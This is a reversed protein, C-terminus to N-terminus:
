AEVGERTIEGWSRLILATGGFFWAPAVSFFLGIAAEGGGLLPWVFLAVFYLGFIRSALPFWRPFRSLLAEQVDEFRLLGVAEARRSITLLVFVFTLLAAIFLFAVAGPLDIGLLTLVHVGLGLLMGAVCALYVWRPFALPEEEPDTSAVPEASASGGVPEASLTKVLYAQLQPMERKGIRHGSWVLGVGFAFMVTLAALPVLTESVGPSISGEAIAAGITAVLFTLLVFGVIGLTRGREVRLSVGDVAHFTESKSGPKPYRKVLNSAQVIPM